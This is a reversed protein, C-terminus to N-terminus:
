RHGTACPPRPDSSRGPSAASAARSPSSRSRLATQSRVSSFSIRRSAADPDSPGCWRLTGAGGAAPSADIMGPPLELDRLAEGAAHEALMAGGMPLPRASPGVLLRQGRVDDRERGSVPAAAVTPDRGHQAIGAPGHVHLAPLSSGRDAVPELVIALPPPVSPSRSLGWHPTDGSWASPAASAVRSPAPEPEIVPGAEAQARLARVADPGAIDHLAPCPVSPLGPHPVDDVLEGRLAQRDPDVPRPVRGGHDIDQGIQEHRVPHARGRGGPCHHPRRGFSDMALATLSQIAATPAFVAKMSGPLGQSFPEQSLKLELSRSPSGIRDGSRPSRGKSPRPGRRSRPM